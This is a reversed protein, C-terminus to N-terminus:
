VLPLFRKCLCGVSPMIGIRFEVIENVFGVSCGVGVFPPEDQFFGGTEDGLVGTDNGENGAPDRRFFSCGDELGSNVFRDEGVFHVNM